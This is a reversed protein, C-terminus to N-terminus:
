PQLTLPAAVLSQLRISGDAAGIEYIRLFGRWRM